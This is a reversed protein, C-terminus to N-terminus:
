GKCQAIITLGDRWTPPILKQYKLFSRHWITSSNNFYNKHEIKRAEYGSSQLMKSLEGSTYERFHGRLDPSLFDFPHQGILIKLRKHIAVANPTQIILFGNKLLHKGLYSLIEEPPTYLHEVVEAFLIIDYEPHISDTDSGPFNLDKEIHKEGKRLHNIPYNEGMTDVAIGPFRDRILNTQFMPGVDLISAQSKNVKTLLDQIIQLLYLYRYKHFEIYDKNEKVSSFFSSVYSLDIPTSGPM